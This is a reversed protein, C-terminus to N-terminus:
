SSTLPSPKNGQGDRDRGAPASPGGGPVLTTPKPGDGRKSPPERDDYRVWLPGYVTDRVELRPKGHKTSLLAPDLCQDGKRHRQAALDSKFHRHCAPCHAEGQAKWTRHCRRCHTRGPLGSPWHGHKSAFSCYPCNEPDYGALIEDNV